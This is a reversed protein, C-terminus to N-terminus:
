PYVLGMGCYFSYENAYSINAKFLDEILFLKNRQDDSLNSELFSMAVSYDAELTKLSADAIHSDYEEKIAQQFDSNFVRKCMEYIIKRTNM